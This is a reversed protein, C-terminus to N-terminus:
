SFGNGELRYVEVPQRPDSVDFVCFPAAAYLYPWQVDLSLVPRDIDITALGDPSGIESIDAIHVGGQGAALFVYDGVNCLDVVEGAVPYNALCVPNHPDSLDLVDMGKSGTALLVISDSVFVADMGTGLTKYTSLVHPKDRDSIDLITLDAGPPHSSDAHCENLGLLLNNRVAVGTVPGPVSYFGELTPESPTSADVIIFDGDYPGEPYNPTWCSGAEADSTTLRGADVLYVLGDRVEAKFAVGPVRYTGVVVPQTPDSIDVVKLGCTSNCVFMLDGEVDVDLARVKLGLRTIEAPHAPDSINLISIASSGEPWFHNRYALYLTSGDDSAELDYPWYNGSIVEAILTPNAPDSIDAVQLGSMGAVFAANGSVIVRLPSNVLDLELKGLLSIHGPDSVDLIALGMEGRIHGYVVYALGDRVCVGAVTSPPSWRGAIFPSSPDSIDVVYMASRGSNTYDGPGRVAVYVYRGDVTVDDARGEKLYIESVLAPATPDSVDFISLGHYMTVYAFDGSVAVDKCDSWLAGSRFTLSM